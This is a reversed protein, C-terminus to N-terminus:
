GHQARLDDRRRLRAAVQELRSRVAGPVRDSIGVLGVSDSSLDLRLDRGAPLAGDLFLKVALEPAQDLRKVASALIHPGLYSLDSDVGIGWVGRIGAAQLAGFGCYGAADFVVRSGADIQRNALRECRSQDAFSGSDGVLVRIAPRAAHAGATFGATLQEVPPVDVGGVVSVAGSPTMEAALYGALYGVERNDYEIGTVNAMGNFPAEGIPYEGFLFRTDPFRRAVRAVVDAYPTPGVIVLGSPRAARALARELGARGTSGAYLVRVDAHLDRRAAR